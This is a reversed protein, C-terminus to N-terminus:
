FRHNMGVTIALQSQGPASTTSPYVVGFQSGGGNTLYGGAVYLSTRKSLSYQVLGSTLTPRAGGQDTYYRGGELVFRWPGTEYAGGAVYIAGNPSIQLNGSVRIYDAFLTFQSWKYLAALSTRRDKQNSQDVTSTINGNTNEQLLRSSFPGNVYELAAGIHRGAAANGAQEQGASYVAGVNFGHWDASQFKVANNIKFTQIPAGNLSLMSYTSYFLPDYFVTKDFQMSGMRGVTFTGYPTQLGVYSFRNFLTTSSSQAGTDLNFGNELVFLARYGGGLDESGKFGIRSPQYSGSAVSTQAHGAVDANSLYQIGVDLVGYITVSSQAFSATSSTAALLAALPWLKKM